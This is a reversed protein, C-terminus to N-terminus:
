ARDGYYESGPETEGRRREGRRGGRPLGGDACSKGSPEARGEEPQADGPRYERLAGHQLWLDPRQQQARATPVRRCEWTPGWPHGAEHADVFEPYSPGGAGSVDHGACFGRGNAKLIVVKINYDAEADKLSNEVDWVMPSNQSNAKEPRNLIIRAIPGEKEYIVTELELRDM